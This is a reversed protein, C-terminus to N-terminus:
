AAHRQEEVFVTRLYQTGPLANDIASMAAWLAEFLSSWRGCGEYECGSPARYINMLM